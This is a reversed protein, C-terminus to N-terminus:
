DNQNNEANIQYDAFEDGMILMPNPEIPVVNNTGFESKMM